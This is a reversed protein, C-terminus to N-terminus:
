RSQGAPSEFQPFGQTLRDCLERSGASIRVEAMGFRPLIQWSGANGFARARDVLM